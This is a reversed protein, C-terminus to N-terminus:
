GIAFSRTLKRAMVEPIVGHVAGGHGSGDDDQAQAGKERRGDEKARGRAGVCRGATHGDILGEAVGDDGGIRVAPLAFQPQLRAAGIGRLAAAM